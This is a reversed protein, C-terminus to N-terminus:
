YRRASIKLSLSGHKFTYMMEGDDNAGIATGDESASPTANLQLEVWAQDGPLDVADMAGAVAASIEEAVLSIATSWYAEILRDAEAEVCQIANDGPNFEVPDITVDEFEDGAVIEWAEASTSCEVPYFRNSDFASGIADSIASADCPLDISPVPCSQLANIVSEKISTKTIM